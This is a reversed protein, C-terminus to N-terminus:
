KYRECLLRQISEFPVQDSLSIVQLLLLILSSTVVVPHHATTEM